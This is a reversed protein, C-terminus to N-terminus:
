DIRGLFDIEGDSRFRALDGTRYLRGGPTPTLPDPVFREATLEPRGLYGRALGAGALCLEAAVGIPAPEIGRDLLYARTGSIPRGISPARTEGRPVRAATAYTAAESPGYLNWVRLGAGHAQLRDALGRALPEGALNAVRLGPPLAALRLLEAMASPVTNVLTVHEAEPLGALALADDVLIARGGRSWPVFLEFVSLDFCLSTSALVAATEGAAFARGAWAVLAVAGAHRLAVGKPIGTSGSTYLVYALNEPTVRAASNPEDAEDDEHPRESADAEPLEIDVRGMGGALETDHGRLLYRVGSDGLTLELRARPYGPDLPVYAGGAKLVGLVAVALEASRPLAIGVLTEAGVGRARLRRALRNARRDLDRYSITPGAPARVLAVAEPTRDAQAEFLQHLCPGSPAADGDNWECLLAQREAATLLPLQSLRRGPDALAGALLSWLHGAMRAVTPRDFLESQYEFGGAVGEATAALALQLDLKATGTAAPLSSVALPGLRPAPRPASQLQFMVQFLPQAALDRRPQL